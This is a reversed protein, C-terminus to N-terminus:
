RPLAGVNHRQRVLPIDLNDSPCFAEKVTSPHGNKSYKATGDSTTPSLPQSWEGGFSWIIVPLPDHLLQVGSWQPRFDKKKKTSCTPYGPTALCAMLTRPLPCAVCVRGLRACATRIPAAACSQHLCGKGLEAKPTWKAPFKPTM